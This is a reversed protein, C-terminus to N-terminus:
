TQGSLCHKATNYDTRGALRLQMDTEAQTIDGDTVLRSCNGRFQSKSPVAYERRSLRRSAALQDRAGVADM